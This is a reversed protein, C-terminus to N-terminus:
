VKKEKKTNSQSSPKTWNSESLSNPFENVLGCIKCLATSMPGNPQDLIWHHKCEEDTTIKDLFFGRIRVSKDTTLKLL